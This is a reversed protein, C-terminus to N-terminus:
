EWGRPPEGGGAPSPQVESHSVRGLGCVGVGVGARRGAKYVSCTRGHKDTSREREAVLSHGEQSCSSPKTPRQAGQDAGAPRGACLPCEPFAQPTFSSLSIDDWQCPSERPSVGVSESWHTPGGPVGSGGRGRLLASQRLNPAGATAARHAGEAGEGALSLRLPHPSLEGERQLLRANRGRGGAVGVSAVQLASPSPFTKRESEAGRCRRLNGFM